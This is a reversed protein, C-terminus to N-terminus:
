SANDPGINDKFKIQLTNQDLFEFYFKSNDEIISFSNENLNNIKSNNRGIKKLLTDTIVM